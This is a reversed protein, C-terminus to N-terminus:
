LAFYCRSDVIPLVLESVYGAGEVLKKWDDVLKM